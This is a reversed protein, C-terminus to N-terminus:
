KKEIKCSVWQLAGLLRVSLIYEKKEKSEICKVEKGRWYLALYYSINILFHQAAQVNIIYLLVDWISHECETFLTLISSKSYKFSLLHTLHNMGTELEMIRKFTGGYTSYVGLLDTMHIRKDMTDIYPM